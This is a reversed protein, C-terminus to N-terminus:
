KANRKIAFFAGEDDSAVIVGDVVKVVFRDPLHPALVIVYKMERVERRPNTLAFFEMRFNLIPLLAAQKAVEAVNGPSSAM